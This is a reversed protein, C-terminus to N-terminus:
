VFIPTSLPLSPAGKSVEWWEGVMQFVERNKRWYNSLLLREKNMRSKSSKPDRYQFYGGFDEGEDAINRTNNLTRKQKTM